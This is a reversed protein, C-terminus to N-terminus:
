AHRSAVVRSVWTDPLGTSIKAWADGDNRTVHVNGDDTGVYLLGPALRSESLTTITGYPM